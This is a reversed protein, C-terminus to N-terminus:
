KTVQGSVSEAIEQMESQTLNDSVLYFDMGDKSWSLSHDTMVGFSEELDVPQATTEIAESTPSVQSQTEILTYGKDGTYKMIFKQPGSNTVEQSYSLKAGDLNMTPKMVTFPQPTASTQADLKATAMNKDVDFTSNDFSPNVKFSKFTIDIMVNMDKDMVKVNKPTLSKQDLTISQNALLQTQYNTKTTFVYSKDKAEFAANADKQIDKVLSQYLYYQSRNNPWESQFHYKKNQSPTLVFVGDKNKIIMQTNEKKGDNLVVKYNDPKQYWIEAEYVKKQEGNKFTMEAVTHYGQLSDMKKGLDKVVDAQSKQGCGALIGVLLIGLIFVFILKKM